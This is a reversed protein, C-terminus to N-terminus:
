LAIIGISFLNSLFVNYDEVASNYNTNIKEPSPYSTLLKTRNDNYDYNSINRSISPDKLYM